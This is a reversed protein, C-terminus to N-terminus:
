PRIWTKDFNTPTKGMEFWIKCDMNVRGEPPDRLNIHNQM